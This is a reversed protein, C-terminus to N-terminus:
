AGTAQTEKVVGLLHLTQQIGNDPAGCNNPLGAANLGISGNQIVTLTTPVRSEWTETVVSEPANLEEVISLYLPDGIVPVQGGNWIQGTAMYHLVAAEYGPRVTVIVRAMGSQLFSRFLPDNVEQQYLEQWNDKKAWYFPYFNYSIIEWEFAQEIFKVRAAYQNLRRGQLPVVTAADKGTYFHDKGMRDTNVLYGICNKRLVTNEVQRYFGPNTGKSGNEQLKSLADQYTKLQAEYAQLISNYTEQQWKERGKDTLELKVTIAINIVHYNESSYSVPLKGTFGSLPHFSTDSSNDLTDNVKTISKVINGVAVSFAHIQSPDTDYGAYYKINAETAKYDDPLSLDASNNLLENEGIGQKGGSFTKGTYQVDGPYPKVEAGYKAAWAMYNFANLDSSKTLGSEAPKAPKTLVTSATNGPLLKMAEAHFVAPQPIMFEYMLRKGYNRVQNKYVKDIWRYVGSVHQDGERNDFGHKQQEEFEEVIKLVREERVKQVVREMARATVDKAYSVAQNNSHQQSSSNAYSGSASVNFGGKNFGFSANASVSSDKSLVESVQQQMEYRDTSSTDTLEEKETQTERTTTDETRRLRRTGKEKYERAMVNEIHSVEGPDYGCLSQEAQRYDAIGLRTIGFDNPIYYDETATNGGSNANTMIGAAGTEADLITTFSLLAGDTLILDGASQMQYMLGSPMFGEPFMELVLVNQQMTAKYAVDENSTGNQLSIRYEFSHVDVVAGTNIALYIKYGKGPVPWLQMYYAYLETGVQKPDFAPVVAGNMVVAQSAKATSRVITEALQQLTNSIVTGAEAFSSTNFIDAQQALAFAPASLQQQLVPTSIQPQPTFTFAPITAPALVAEGGGPAAGAPVEAPPNAAAAVAADYVAKAQQYAAANTKEYQQTAKTLEKQLLTYQAISEKAIAVQVQEKLANKATTSLRRVSDPEPATSIQNGIGFFAAPIVVTALAQKHRNTEPSKRVHNAVLVQLICDRVYSSQGSIIQYLLNDWLALEAEFPLPVANSFDASTNLLASNKSLETANAALWAAFNYLPTGAAAKVMEENTFPTTLQAAKERQQQLRETENTLPNQLLPAFHGLSINPHYVFNSNREDDSLLSPARLTSFRFLTNTMANAM